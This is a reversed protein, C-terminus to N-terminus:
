SKGSANMKGDDTEDLEVARREDVMVKLAMKPKSKGKANKGAASKKSRSKSLEKAGKRTNKLNVVPGDAVVPTNVIADVVPPVTDDLGGFKPALFQKKICCIIVVGIVLVTYLAM